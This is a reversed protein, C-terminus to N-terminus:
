GAMERLEFCWYHPLRSRRRGGRKEPVWLQTELESRRGILGCHFCSGRGGYSVAVARFPGVRTRSYPEVNLVLVIVATGLREQLELLEHLRDTM